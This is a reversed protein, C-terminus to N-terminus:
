NVRVGGGWHRELPSRPPPSSTGVHSHMCMCITRAHLRRECVALRVRMRSILLFFRLSLNIGGGEGSGRKANMRLRPDCRGHGSRNGQGSGSYVVSARGSAIVAGVCCGYTVTARMSCGVAEALDIVDKRLQSRGHATPAAWQLHANCVRGLLHTVIRSVRTRQGRTRGGNAFHAEVAAMARRCEKLSVLRGGHDVKVYTCAGCGGAPQLSSRVTAYM